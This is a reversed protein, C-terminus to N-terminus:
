RKGPEGYKKEADDLVLVWDVDEGVDPPTFEQKRTNVIEGIRTAQGNRPNFWWGVLNAARLKDLRISFPRGVPVYVMAYTGEINRTAVVFRHRRRSHRDPRDSELIVDDDPIRSLMPRSELLRRAYQMQMGGPAQSAETWTLLPNNVPKQKSSYMQWISHHGYTHGCAGSFLDWYLRRACTPPSPTASSRRRSRSPIDRM